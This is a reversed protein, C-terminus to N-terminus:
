VALRSVNQEHLERQVKSRRRQPLEADAGRERLAQLYTVDEDLVRGQVIIREGLPEGIRQRTLDNELADLREAQLLPGTVESLSHPLAIAPKSPSRGTTSKYEPSLNAPHQGPPPRQSIDQGQCFKDISIAADHGHAVAWIINKPGFAADGGFFIKPHTSGMTVEDVVPM